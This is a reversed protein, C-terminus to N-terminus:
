GRDASAARYGKHLEAGGGQGGARRGTAGGGGDVSTGGGGPSTLPGGPRARPAAREEGEHTSAAIWVPRGALGLKDGMAAVDRGHDPPLVADFKVSGLVQVKDPAAGLAVFRRVQDADQCAILDLQSLMAKTFKPARGYARASRESLRANILLVPVGRRRAESILNPWLETEVLVLLRPQVARFFARVAFPFDYPAYCHAVKDGLRQQAQKAGAPTMNTVLCPARPFEAALASVLPAVAITEGASVAHFWICGKPLLTPARGFREGWRQGYAPERRARWALRLPVLPLALWLLAQYLFKAMM